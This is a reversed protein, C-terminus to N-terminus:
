FSILEESGYAHACCRSTRRFALRIPALHGMRERNKRFPPIRHHESLEKRKRAGGAKRSARQAQPLSSHIEKKEKGVLSVPSSREATGTHRSQILAIVVM